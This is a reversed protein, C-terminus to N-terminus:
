IIIKELTTESVASAGLFAGIPQFWKGCFSQFLIVLAHDGLKDQDKETTYEELDVFGEQLSSKKFSLEESLKIEDILLFRPYYICLFIFIM